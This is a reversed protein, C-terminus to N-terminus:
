EDRKCEKATLSSYEPIAAGAFAEVLAPKMASLQDGDERDTQIRSLLRGFIRSADPRKDTRDRCLFQPEVAERTRRREKPPVSSTGPGM